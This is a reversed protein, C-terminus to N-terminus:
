ITKTRNEPSGFNPEAKFISVSVKKYVIYTVVSVIFAKIGNFPLLGLTIYKISEAPSMQMGYAPLLFYVNAIIGVVEMCVAGLIMGLIATKKSKKKHYVLGAPLILSVGVLFNAVEGILGTQTGKILVIVINKILEILVGALPGFGFAAMLAPVDSLDIKLWPFLPIIPFDIYMLILALASLLSIKVMKNTNNNM